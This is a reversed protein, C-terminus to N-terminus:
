VAIQKTRAALNVPVEIRFHFAAAQPELQGILLAELAMASLKGITQVFSPDIPPIALEVFVFSHRAVDAKGLDPDVMDSFKPRIWLVVREPCEGRAAHLKRPSRVDSQRHNMLNGPVNGTM